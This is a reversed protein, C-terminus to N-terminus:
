CEHKHINFLARQIIFLLLLLLNVFSCVALVHTVLIGLYM